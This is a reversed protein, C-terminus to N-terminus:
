STGREYRKVNGENRKREGGEGWSVLNAKVLGEWGGMGSWFVVVRNM